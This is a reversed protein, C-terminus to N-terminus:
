SSNWNKGNQRDKRAFHLCLNCIKTVENDFGFFFIPILLVITLIALFNLNQEQFHLSFVEPCQKIDLTRCQFIPAFITPISAGVFLSLTIPTSRITPATSFIPGSIATITSKTSFITPCNPQSHYLNNRENHRAAYGFRDTEWCGLCFFASPPVVLIVTLWVFQGVLHRERYVEAAPQLTLNTFIDKPVFHIKTATVNAIYVCNFASRFLEALISKRQQTLLKQATCSM